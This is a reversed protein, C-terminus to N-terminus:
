SLRADVSRASHRVWGRAFSQAFDVEGRANAVVMGAKRLRNRYVRAYDEGKGLREAVDSLRSVGDDEAMAGLFRRDVNSLDRWVPELILREARRRAVSIGAAVDHALIGEAPDEAQRWSHFGVLQIMFPYGSTADVAEALPGPEISSGSEM